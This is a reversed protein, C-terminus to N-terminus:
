LKVTYIFSRCGNSYSSHTSLRATGIQATNRLVLGKTILFLVFNIFTDLKVKSRIHLVPKMSCQLINRARGVLLLKAWNTEALIGWSQAQLKRHLGEKTKTTEIAM